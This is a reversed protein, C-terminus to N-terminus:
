FSISVAVGGFSFDYLGRDDAYKEPNSNVSWTHAAYSEVAVNEAIEYAAIVKAMVNNAGRHGDAVFGGNYGLIVSPMIVFRDLPAFEHAISAEAFYGGSTTGYYADLAPTWGFLVDACSIGAGFENDKDNDSMFQLHNYSVYADLVGLNFNIEAFYNQEQYDAEPSHNLWVGVLFDAYEAQLMFGHLSSGELLDRGELVYRSDWNGIASFTPSPKEGIEAVSQALESSHDGSDANPPLFFAAVVIPALYKKM